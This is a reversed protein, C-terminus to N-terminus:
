RRRQQRTDDGLDNHALVSGGTDIELVRVQVAVCHKAERRVDEGVGDQVFPTSHKLADVHRSRNHHSTASANAACQPIQSAHAFDTHTTVKEIHTGKDAQLRNAWVMRPGIADSFPVSGSITYVASIPVVGTQQKADRTARKVRTVDLPM